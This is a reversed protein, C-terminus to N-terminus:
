KHFIAPKPPEEPAWLRYSLTFFVTMGQTILSGDAAAPVAANKANASVEQTAWVSATAPGFNYEILGGVAWLNFRQANGATGLPNFATCIGIPCKDDTVQGVYYAVPGVTWKGITKTATFDVHFINGTTYNDISNATNIEYYMAASLNWGDKLYSLILEPQFTWFPNGQNGLGTPGTMTGDPAGIGLGTKVNFGSTGFKWSLEV